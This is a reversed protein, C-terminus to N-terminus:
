SCIQNINLNWNENHIIRAEHLQGCLIEAKTLQSAERWNGRFVYTANNPQNSEFVFLGKTTFGYIVYGWFGQDGIAMFNPLNQTIAEHRKTIIIKHKNPIFNIINDLHSRATEWPYEGTPLVTWSLRERRIRTRPTCNEALIECNGFMELYMNIIHKILNKNDQSYVLLPSILLGNSYTLEIEPPTIFRRQYCKRTYYRTGYHDTGHWDVIHYESEFTRDEMPLSKEPFWRGNANFDTIRKLPRPLFSLTGSLDDLVSYKTLEDYYIRADPLGVYFNEGEQFESLYKDVNQIRKGSIIM